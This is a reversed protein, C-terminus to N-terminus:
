ADRTLSFWADQAEGLKYAKGVMVGRAVRRMYDHMNAYVLKSLGRDNPKRTPWGAAGTSPMATYDFYPEKPHPGEGSAGRAVFYGPGTVFSMTQHNYGVVIGEETRMFRKQFRSFLPLSNRGEWIVTEGVPTSPPVVDDVTLPEADAVADYLRGVARGTVSLVERLREPYPLADLHRAIEQARAGNTLLRALSTTQSTEPSTAAPMRRLM